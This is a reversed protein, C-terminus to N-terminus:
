HFFQLEHLGHFVGLNGVVMWIWGSRTPKLSLNFAALMPLLSRTAALPFSEAVALGMCMGLIAYPVGIRWWTSQWQWRTFFFAIQTVLAALCLVVSLAHAKSYFGFRGFVEPVASAIGVFPAAFARNGGAGDLSFRWWVYSMWLAMPLVLVIGQPVITRAFAALESFRTPFKPPVDVVGLGAALSTEKGLSAVGLTAIGAWRWGRDCFYFGLLMVFLAPGDTLARALSVALGSSFLIGFWRCFNFWNTLPLWHQLLLATAIWFLVNQVAYAHIVWRTQGLGLLWATWSFLIRRSRFAVTDVAERLHPDTLLPDVALQAYFQGDYGYSDKQVARGPMQKVPELRNAEFHGGFMITSTMGTRHKVFHSVGFAFLVFCAIQAVFFLRTSSFLASGVLSTRLGTRAAATPPSPM